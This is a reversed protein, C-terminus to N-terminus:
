LWKLRIKLYVYFKENERSLDPFSTGIVANIFRLPLKKVFPTKM